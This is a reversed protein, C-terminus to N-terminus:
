IPNSYTFCNSDVNCYKPGIVISLVNVHSNAVRSVYLSNFYELKEDLVESRGFDNINLLEGLCHTIISFVSRTM